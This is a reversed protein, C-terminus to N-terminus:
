ISPGIRSGIYVEHMGGIDERRAFDFLHIECLSHVILHDEGLPAHGDLHKPQRGLDIPRQICELVGARQPARFGEGVFGSM